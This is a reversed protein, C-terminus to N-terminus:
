IKKIDDVGSDCHESSSHFQQSGPRVQEMNGMIVRCSVIHQLGNEDVDSYGVNVHSCDEPSLYVGIGYTTVNNPSSTQGFGHLIINAM